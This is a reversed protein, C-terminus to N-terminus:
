DELAIKLYSQFLRFDRGYFDTQLNLVYTQAIAISKADDGASRARRESLSAVRALARFVPFVVENGSHRRSGSSADATM